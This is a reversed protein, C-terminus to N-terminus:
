LYITEYNRAIAIKLDDLSIGRLDAIYQYLWIVQAPTNTQGRMFQPALYPADTELLMKDMPTM